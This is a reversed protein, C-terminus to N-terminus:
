HEDSVGRQLRRLNCDYYAHNVDAVSVAVVSHTIAASSVSSYSQMFSTIQAEVIFFTM